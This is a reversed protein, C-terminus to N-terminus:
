TFCFPLMCKYDWGKSPLFLHIEQKKSSLWGLMIESSWAVSLCLAVEFLLASLVQPISDLTPRPICVGVEYLSVCVHVCARVSCALSIVWCETLVQWCTKYYFVDSEWLNDEVYSNNYTHM